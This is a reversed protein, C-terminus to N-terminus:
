VDLQPMSCGLTHVIYHATLAAVTLSTVCFLKYELMCLFDPGGDGAWDYKPGALFVHATLVHVTACAHLVNVTCTCTVCECYVYVYYMFQLVHM